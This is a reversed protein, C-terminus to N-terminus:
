VEKTSSSGTASSSGSGARQLRELGGSANDGILIYLAAAVLILSLLAAMGLKVQNETV